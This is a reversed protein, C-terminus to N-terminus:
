GCIKGCIAKEFAGVGTRLGGGLNITKMKNRGRVTLGSLSPIVVSRQEQNYAEASETRADSSMETPLVQQQGPPQVILLEQGM